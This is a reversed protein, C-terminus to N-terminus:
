LHFIQLTPCNFYYKLGHEDKWDRIINSKGSGHESDDDEELVFDEGAELWTKVVAELISDIYVHQSMKRNSNGPMEYFILESKFNHGVAAWCHYRKQKM